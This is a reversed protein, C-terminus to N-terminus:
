AADQERNRWEAIIANLDFTDFDAGKEQVAWAIWDIKNGLYRDRFAVWPFYDEWSRDNRLMRFAQAATFYEGAMQRLVRWTGPMSPDLSADLLENGKRIMMNFAAFDADDGVTAYVAAQRETHTYQPSLTQPTM